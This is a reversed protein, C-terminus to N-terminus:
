DVLSAILDGVTTSRVAIQKGDSRVVVYFMKNIGVSFSPEPTFKRSFEIMRFKNSKEGYYVGLRTPLNWATIYSM